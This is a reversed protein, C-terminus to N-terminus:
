RSNKSGGKNSSLFSLNTLNSARSDVRSGANASRNLMQGQMTPLAGSHVSWRSAHSGNSGVRSRPKKQSYIFQSKEIMEKHERQYLSLKNMAEDNVQKLKKQYEIDIKKQIEAWEEDLEGDQEQYLVQAPAEHYLDQQQPSSHNSTRKPQANSSGQHGVQQDFDYM